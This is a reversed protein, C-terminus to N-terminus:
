KEIVQAFNLSPTFQKWCAYLLRVSQFFPRNRAASPPPYRQLTSRRAYMAPNCDKGMRPRASGAPSGWLVQGKPCRCDAWQCPLLPSVPVGRMWDIRHDVVGVGNEFTLNPHLDCLVV